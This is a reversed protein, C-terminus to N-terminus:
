INLSFMQVLIKSCIYGTFFMFKGDSNQFDFVFNCTYVTYYVYRFLEFNKLRILYYTTTRNCYLIPRLPIYTPTIQSVDNQTTKFEFSYVSKRGRFIQTSLLCTSFRFYLFHQVSLITSNYIIHYFSTRKEWTFFDYYINREYKSFNIAYNKGMKSM